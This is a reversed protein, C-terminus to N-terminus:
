SDGVKLWSIRGDTRPYAAFDGLRFQHNLQIYADGTKLTQGDWYAIKTGENYFGIEDNDIKLLLAKGVEGIEIGDASFRIYKVLNNQLNYLDDGVQDLMESQNTFTATINNSLQTLASETYTQLQGLRDRQISVEGVISTIGDKATIIDSHVSNVIPELLSLRNYSDIGVRFDYSGTQTPM